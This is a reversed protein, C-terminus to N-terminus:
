SAHDAELRTLQRVVAEVLEPPALVTVDPGHECLADALMNVDTYHVSYVDGNTSTEPRHALVTAAQSDPRVAVTAVQDVYLQDLEDTMNSVTDPPSAVAAEDLIEVASVIRRLLFTRQAPNEGELSLV